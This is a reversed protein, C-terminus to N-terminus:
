NNNTLYAPSSIGEKIMTESTKIYVSAKQCLYSNSNIMNKLANAADTENIYGAGVYGGMLYAAARLQPHGNDIIADIKKNIIKEITSTKDNIIYQKVQPAVIKTIKKTWTSANERILIDKDYSIFMPLICNKPATDFGNYINLKNEIANFYEKFETVDSCIPIKVLARVGHRSASLWAAIIFDHEEFIYEKFEAANDLELHDFDLVLLGTFKNINSYKRTGEHYNSSHNLLICPTFSYLKTKLQQKTKMDKCEEAIRIQEFINRIDIKPAKIANLVYDLSVNGLPFSKQIDAEYFNFIIDKM